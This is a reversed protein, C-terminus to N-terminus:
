AQNEMRRVTKMTPVFAIGGLVVLLGGLAIGIPLDTATNPLPQSPMPVFEGTKELQKKEKVANDLAKIKTNLAAPAFDALTPNITALM